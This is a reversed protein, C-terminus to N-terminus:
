ADREDVLQIAEMSKLEFRQPSQEPERYSLAHVATEENSCELLFPVLKHCRKLLSINVCLGLRIATEIIQQKTSLHYDRLEQLWSRPLAAREEAESSYHERLSVPSAIEVEKVQGLPHQCFIGWSRLSRMEFFVIDELIKDSLPEDMKENLRTKNMDGSKSKDSSVDSDASEAVDLLQEVMMPLQGNTYGQLWSRIRDISYQRSSQLSPLTIRLIIVEQVSVVEAIELGNWLIYPMIGPLLILEGNQQIHLQYEPEAAESGRIYFVEEEHNSCYSLFGCDACLELLELMLPQQHVPNAYAYWRNDRKIDLLVMLMDIPIDATVLQQTLWQWLIDHQRAQALALWEILKENNILIHNQEQKVIDLDFAIELMFHIIGGSGQLQNSWVQEIGLFGGLHEVFQSLQKISAKSLQDSKTLRLPKDNLRQLFLTFRIALSNVHEFRCHEGSPVSDYPQLYSSIRLMDRWNNFVPLPMWVILGRWPDQFVVIIGAEAFLQLAQKCQQSPRALQRMLIQVLEEELQPTLLLGNLLALLVEKQFENLQGYISKIIDGDVIALDWVWEENYSQWLKSDMFQERMRHPIMLRWSQLTMM